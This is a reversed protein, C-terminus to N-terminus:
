QIPDPPCENYPYPYEAPARGQRLQEPEPSMMFASEGGSFAVKSAGFSANGDFEKQASGKGEEYKWGSSGLTDLYGGGDSQKNPSDYNEFTVRKKDPSFAQNSGSYQDYQSPFDVQQQNM